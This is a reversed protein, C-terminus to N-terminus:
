NSVDPSIRLDLPGHAERHEYVCDQHHDFHECVIPAAGVGHEGRHHSAELACTGMETRRMAAGWERTHGEPVHRGVSLSVLYRAALTFDLDSLAKTPPRQLNNVCLLLYARVYAPFSLPRQRRVTCEEKIAPLLHARSASECTSVPISRSFIHTNNAASCM